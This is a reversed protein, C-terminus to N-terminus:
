LFAAYSVSMQRRSHEHAYLVVATMMMMMHGLWHAVLYSYSKGHVPEFHLSVSDFV